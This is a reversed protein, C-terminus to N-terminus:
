NEKSVHTRYDVKAKTLDTTIADSFDSPYQTSIKSYKGEFATKLQLQLTQEKDSQIAKKVNGSTIQTVADSTSVGHYGSGSSLLNPLVFLLFLALLGWLWWSRMLRKRNM